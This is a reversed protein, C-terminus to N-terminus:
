SSPPSRPRKNKGEGKSVENRFVVELAKRITANRQGLGWDVINRTHAQFAKMDQQRILFYHQIRKLFYREQDPDYWHIFLQAIENEIAVSYAISHPATSFDHEAECEDAEDGTAPEKDPVADESAVEESQKQNLM